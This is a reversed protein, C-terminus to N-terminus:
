EPFLLVQFFVYAVQSSKPWVWLHGLESYRILEPSMGPGAAQSPATDPLGALTPATPHPGPGLGPLVLALTPRPGHLRGLADLPLSSLGPRGGGRGQGSTGPRSDESAPGSSMAVGMGLYLGGCVSICVCIYGRISVSMGVWICVEKVCVCM